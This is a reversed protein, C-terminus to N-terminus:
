SNLRPFLDALNSGTYHLVAEQEQQTCRLLVLRHIPNGIDIWRAINAPIVLLSGSQAQLQFVQQQHHFSILVDGEVVYLIEDKDVTHESLYKMRLRSLNQYSENEIVALTAFPFQHQRDLPVVDRKLDRQLDPKAILEDTDGRWPIERYVVGADQLLETTELPLNSRLRIKSGQKDQYITLISM